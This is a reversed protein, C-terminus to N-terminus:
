NESYVMRFHGAVTTQSLKIQPDIQGLNAVRIRDSNNSLPLLRFVELTAGTDESEEGYKYVYFDTFAAMAKGVNVAHDSPASPSFHTAVLLSIESEIIYVSNSVERIDPGDIRIEIWDSQSSLNREQAGAVHTAIGSLNDTFHKACSLFVWKPLSLKLSM